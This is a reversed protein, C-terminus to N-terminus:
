AAGNSYKAQADALWRRYGSDSILLKKGIKVCAAALGNEERSRLQYRLTAETMLRPYRAAFESVSFLDDLNLAQTNQQQQQM